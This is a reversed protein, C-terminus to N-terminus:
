ARPLCPIASTMWLLHLCRPHVVWGDNPTAPVLLLPLKIDVVGPPPHHSGRLPLRDTALALSANASSTPTATVFNIYIDANALQHWRLLSRPLM